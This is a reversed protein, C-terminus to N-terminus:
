CFRSFFSTPSTHQVNALLSVSTASVANKKKHPSALFSALCVKPINSHGAHLRPFSTIEDYLAKDQKARPHRSIYRGKKRSLETLTIATAERMIYGGSGSLTM